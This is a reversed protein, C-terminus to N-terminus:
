LCFCHSLLPPSCRCLITTRQLTNLSGTTHISSRRRCCCSGSGRHAGQWTTMHSSCGHCACLVTTLDERTQMVDGDTVMSYLLLVHAQRSLRRQATKQAFGHGRATHCPILGGDRPRPSCFCQVILDLSSSRIPHAPVHRSRAESSRRARGDASRSRRRRSTERTHSLIRCIHSIFLVTLKICCNAVPAPM